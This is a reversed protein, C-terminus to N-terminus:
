NLCKITAECLLANLVLHPLFLKIYLMLPKFLVLNCFHEAFFFDM